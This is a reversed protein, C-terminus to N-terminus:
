NKPLRKRNLDIIVYEETQVPIEFKRMADQTQPDNLNVSVYYDAGLSVLEEVPRGQYPWGSRKTQYLFATDGNYPAVVLADKPAIKDLAEGARIIEPHNIKYFERIPFWPFLLTWAVSVLVFLKTVPQYLAKTRWLFITGQALIIAIAPIAITQYYDHRVNAAAIISVYMFMALIFSLSFGLDTRPKKSLLGALFLFIGWSGLILHGLREGFIWYWFAPRFRIGFLNFVWKYFPIGEPYQLMWIRWFVFPVLSILAFAWLSRSRLMLVPQWSFKKAALYLMPVSYFAVYPKTLLALAFFVGASILLIIKNKDFWYVFFVLALLGFTVSLPEPLIVRSFYINFPLFAFFFAAILGGGAGLFRKGLLFVLVISITSAAVSLMRGWFELSFQPFSKVLVAHVVNFIPFEVFRWGELNLHGTQLLSLDHYRPHLIDIGRDVFIRTVSATDAQRWSHWDAIPNDIKYLRILFGLFVIPLLWFIPKGVIKATINVLKNM